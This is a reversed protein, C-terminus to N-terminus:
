EIYFLYDDLPDPIWGYKAFKPEVLIARKTLKEKIEEMTSHPNLRLFRAAMAGIRPVAFSSGSALSRVGRHDIVEIQEANVLLDVNNAGFNSGRALNGYMTSSSVVLMNELNLSAPFIKKEDLNTNKNGASVIFLIEKHSRAAKDFCKWTEFNSSGMPILAVKINQDAIDTVIDKFSCPNKRSFRYPVIQALPAERILISAVSTGHHRPFFPSGVFDADFPFRDGDEFDYGLLEKPNKRALRKTIDPLLYNIGTDVLAVKIGQPPNVAPIDPNLNEVFAEKRLDKSLTSISIIRNYKDRKILRALSINCSKTVALFLEPNSNKYFTYRFSKQSPNRKISTIKVEQNIIPNVFILENNNRAKQRWENIQIPLDDNKVVNTCTHSFFQHHDKIASLSQRDTHNAFVQNAILNLCLFFYPLFLYM